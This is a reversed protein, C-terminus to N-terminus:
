IKGIHSKERILNDGRAGMTVGRLFNAGLVVVIKQAVGGAFMCFGALAIVLPRIGDDASEGSTAALWTLLILPLLHGLGMVAFLPFPRRLYATAKRFHITRPLWIYLGWAIADATVCVLVVKFVGADVMSRQLGSVVLFVGGGLVVASSFFLSPIIPVNWATMARARYFIFGHSIVLELAACAAAVKLAPLSFFHDLAAAAIFIAGSLIEISMWSGRLNSLLYTGRWPRGSELSVALFGLGVLAAPLLDVPGPLLGSFSESGAFLTFSVILYLGAGSGGLVFNAVAPWGWAREKRPKLLEAHM